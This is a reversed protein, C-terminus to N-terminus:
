TSYGHGEAAGGGVVSLVNWYCARGCLDEDEQVGRPPTSTPASKGDRPSSICRPVPLSKHTAFVRIQANCPWLLPRYCPALGLHPVSSM